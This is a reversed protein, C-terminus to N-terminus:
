REYYYEQRNKHISIFHDGQLRIVAQGLKFPLQMGDTVVSRWLSCLADIIENDVMTCPSGAWVMATEALPTNM